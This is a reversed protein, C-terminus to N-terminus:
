GGILLFVTFIEQKYCNNHALSSSNLTRFLFTLLNLTTTWRSNKFQLTPLATKQLPHKFQLSLILIKSLALHNLSSSFTDYFTFYRVLQLASGGGLYEM